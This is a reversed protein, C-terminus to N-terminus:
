GLRLRALAARILDRDETELGLLASSVLYLCAASSGLVALAGALALPSASQLLPQAALSELWWRLGAVAACTIGGAALPKGLGLRLYNISLRRRVQFVRLGVATLNVLLVSVAAGPLGYRPILVLNLGLLLPLILATNLLELVQRNCMVLTYALLNMPIFLIQAVALLQLTRKGAGFDAGWIGMVWDGGCLFTIALPLALMLCWRNSLRLAKELKDRQGTNFFGSAMTAYIANAAMSVLAIVLSTRLAAAYIGVDAMDRLFGVCFTDLWRYLYHSFDAGLVPLSYALLPGAPALHRWSFAQPVLRRIWVLTLCISLVLSIGFGGVLGTRPGVTLVLLVTLGAWLTPQAIDRALVVQTMRQHAQVVMQLLVFMVHLPLTWAFWGLYSALRADLGLLRCVGPLAVALLAALVFSTALGALLVTRVVRGADEHRGELSAPPVFRLLADALGLRGLISALNLWALSLFYVGILEAGLFRALVVGALYNLGNGAVGGVFTIGTGKALTNVEGREM